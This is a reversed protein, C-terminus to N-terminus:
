VNLEPLCFYISVLQLWMERINFLSLHNDFKLKLFSKKLESWCDVIVSHELVNLQIEGSGCLM